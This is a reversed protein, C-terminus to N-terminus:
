HVDRPLSKSIFQDGCLEEIVRPRDMRPADEPKYGFPVIPLDVRCYPMTLKRGSGTTWQEDRCTTHSKITEPWVIGVYVDRGYRAVFDEISVRYKGTNSFGYVQVIGEIARGRVTRQINFTITASRDAVKSNTGEIPAYQIRVVRGFFISDARNRQDASM